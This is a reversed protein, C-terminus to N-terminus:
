LQNNGKSKNQEKIAFEKKSNEIDDKSPENHIFEDDVADEFFTTVENDSCEVIEFDKAFMKKNNEDFYSMFEDANIRELKKMNNDIVKYFFQIPKKFYLEHSTCSFAYSPKDKFLKEKRYDIDELDEDKNNLEDFESQHKVLYDIMHKGVYLNKNKDALWMWSYDYVDSPIYVRKYKEKYCVILKGDKAYHFDINPNLEFCVSNELDTSVRMIDGSYKKTFNRIADVLNEAVTSDNVTYFAIYDKDKKTINIDVEKGNKLLDFLVNIREDSDIGNMKIQVHHTLTM